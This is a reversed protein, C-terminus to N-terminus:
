GAAAVEVLVEGARPGPVPRRVLQLVEPEGPGAPDIADMQKPIEAM